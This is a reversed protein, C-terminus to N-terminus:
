AEEQARQLESELEELAFVYLQLLSKRTEFYKMQVLLKTKLEPHQQIARHLMSAFDELSVHSDDVALILDPHNDTLLQVLQEKITKEYQVTTEISSYNYTHLRSLVEKLKDSKILKIDGSNIISLYRNMPPEFARYYILNYEIRSKSTTQGKIKDLDLQEDLFATYLPIDQNWTDSREACYKKLDAIEMSINELVKQAEQKEINAISRENLWFSVSIGLVLIVFEFFYNAIIKKM